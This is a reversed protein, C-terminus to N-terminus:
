LKKILYSPCGDKTIYDITLNNDRCFDNVAAVVGPFFDANFDHGLIYGGQKVKPLSVELDHQICEYEHCGDIYVWDLHEDPFLQLINSEAKLVKCNHIFSFEPIINSIFYDDLNITVIDNGNKDGSMVDGEWPDILYLMKPEVTDLLIKSFQGKWVGIEAGVSNKPLLKILEERTRIIEM